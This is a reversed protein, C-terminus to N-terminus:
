MNDPNMIHLYRQEYIDDLIEETSKGDNYLRVRLDKLRHESLAFCKPYLIKNEYFVRLLEAKRYSPAIDSSIYERSISKEKLKNFINDIEINLYKNDKIIDIIRKYCNDLDLLAEKNQLCRDLLGELVEISNDYKKIQGPTREDYLKYFEYLVDFLDNSKILNIKITVKSEM